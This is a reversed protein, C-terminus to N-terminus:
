SSTKLCKSFLPSGLIVALIKVAKGGRIEGSKRPPWTDLDRPIARMIERHALKVEPVRNRPPSATRM